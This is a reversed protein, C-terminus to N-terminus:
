FHHSSKESSLVKWTYDIAFLNYPYQGIMIGRIFLGTCVPMIILFTFVKLTQNIIIAFYFQKKSLCLLMFFTLPVFRFIVQSIWIQKPNMLIFIAIM